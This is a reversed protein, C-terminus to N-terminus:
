TWSAPTAAPWSWSASAATPAPWPSAAPPSSSTRRRRRWRRPPSARGKEVVLGSAEHIAAGSNMISRSGGTGGGALLKDSDGQLLRVEDFPVGLRDGAGPRLALRPGPRLGAHGHHHHRRWRRRLQHRGDGQQGAGDGRPLPRHRHRAAQGPPPQEARRAAFGDWDAAALAKELLAPFDGSDYAMTSPASYPMQEPRIHNRRRLDVRDIGMERAATDVLREMYYNGEPRGAGRYAGVPRPTPSCAAAPWRWWRRAYVGIVNKVTNMTQPLTTANSLYAGVNGYGTM